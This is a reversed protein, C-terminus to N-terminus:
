DILHGCKEKKTSLYRENHENKSVSLAVREVEFGKATLAKIKLPNNTNLSVKKLKFHELVELAQDYSRSDVSLGLALNAEVTDAGSEQLKYARIKEGIGIGRGEQNLYILLGLKKDQIAELASALQDGCDCKLSGFIEGTKCESHIRVFVSKNPPTQANLNISLCVLEEGSQDRFVHCQFSGFKTPLNTQSYHKLNM